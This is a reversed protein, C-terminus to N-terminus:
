RTAAPTDAGLDLKKWRKAALVAVTERSLTGNDKFTLSTLKPMTLIRALAAEGVGTERISLEELAPLMAIAEVTADTMAPVSWIDLVRLSTASALRALGDDGVSPLEHLYLRQLKPLDRLVELAPDRVDPLDRLTLRTLPLGALALVGDTGFGQCRFIELSELGALRALHPGSADTIAFDQLLLSRLTTSAALGAVGADTVVTSRHKFAALKPLGGAVELTLDGAEMNGRLDLARLGELRALRRTALDNLRTQVLTLRELHGLDAIARLSAGTLNTNSSLDLEVLRPCQAVIAKVGDDTLGANTIALVELTGRDTLAKAALDDLMRCDFIQLVRLHELAAMRAVDDDTLLSGDAISVETLHGAADVVHRAAGGLDALRAVVAADPTSATARREAQMAGALCMALMAAVVAAIRRPV